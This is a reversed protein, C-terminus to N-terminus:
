DEGNREVYDLAEEVYMMWESQELNTADYLHHGDEYVRVSLGVAEHAIFTINGIHFQMRFLEEGGDNLEDLKGKIVRIVEDRDIGYFDVTKSKLEEIELKM